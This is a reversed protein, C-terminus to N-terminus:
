EETDAPAEVDEKKGKKKEKVDIKEAAKIIESLRAIVTATYGTHNRSIITDLTGVEEEEILLYNANNQQVKIGLAIIKIAEEGSEARTAGFLAVLARKATLDGDKKGTRDVVEVPEGTIQKIKDNLGTIKKM